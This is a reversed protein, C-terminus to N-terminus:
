RYGEAQLKFANAYIRDKALLEEHTGQEALKGGNLVIIRDANRVTSFRHSVIIVTKNKFYKYIENFIKYEAVADIASTPEDFIALPANRYFFRAITIKQQQGTSPRIGDKFKESMTQEFGNKYEHLFSTVDSQEAVKKLEEENFEKNIDGLVINEKLTFTSYFNYEQFVVGLNKYLSSLEIDKINTGNILIEGENVDYFRCLLKILTTKGAGNHGVIAVKEGSDIKLNLGEFVWRDSNPYKFYVNKLEISPSKELVNLEISGNLVSSKTNFFAMLDRMKLSFESLWAFSSFTASISDIFSDISRMYFAVSGITLVGAIAKSFVFAYAGVTLATNFIDL